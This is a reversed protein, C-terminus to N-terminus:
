CLYLEEIKKYVEESWVEHGYDNPHEDYPFYTTTKNLPDIKKLYSSWSYYSEGMVWHQLNIKNFKLMHKKLFEDARPDLLSWLSDWFVYKINNSDLFLQLYLINDLYKEYRDNFDYFGTMYTKWFKSESIEKPVERIGSLKLSNLSKSFSSELQHQLNLQEYEKTFCNYLEFRTFQTWGILVILDKWKDENELLWKMTTRVIYDNGVGGMADNYFECNLKTAVLASATLGEEIRREAAEHTGGDGAVFSCGNTYLYKM